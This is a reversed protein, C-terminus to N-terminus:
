LFFNCRAQMSQSQEEVILALVVSCGGLKLTRHFDPAPDVPRSMRLHGLTESIVSQSKQPFAIQLGCRRKEVLGDPNMATKARWRRGLIRIRERAGSQDCIGAALVGFCLREDSLRQHLLTRYIAGLM